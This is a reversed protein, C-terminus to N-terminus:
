FNFLIQPTIVALPGRPSVQFGARIGGSSVDCASANRSWSARRKGPDVPHFTVWKSTTFRHVSWHPQFSSSTSSASTATLGPALFLATHLTSVLQRQQQDASHNYLTVNLQSGPSSASHRRVLGCHTDADQVAAGRQAATTHTHTVHLCLM